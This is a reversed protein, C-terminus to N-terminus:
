SKPLIKEPDAGAKLAAATAGAVCALSASQASKMDGTMKSVTSPRQDGDFLAMATEAIDGKLMASIQCQEIANGANAADDGDLGEPANVKRLRSWAQECVRQAASAQEYGSYVDSSGRGVAEIAKGVGVMADDCPKLITMLAGHWEVAGKAQGAKEVKAAAAKRAREEEQMKQMGEPDVIFAIITVAFMLAIMGLCGIGVKRGLSLKRKENGASAM